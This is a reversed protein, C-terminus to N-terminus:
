CKASVPLCLKATYPMQDMTKTHCIVMSLRMLDPIEIAKWKNEM